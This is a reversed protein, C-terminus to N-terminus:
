LLLWCSSSYWVILGWDNGHRKLRQEKTKKATVEAKIEEVMQKRREEPTVLTIRDRVTEAEYAVQVTKKVNKRNAWPADKSKAIQLQKIITPTNIM